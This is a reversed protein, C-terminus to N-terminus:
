SILLKIAYKLKIDKASNEILPPRRKYMGENSRSVFWELSTILTAFEILNAEANKTKIKDNAKRPFIKVGGITKKATIM